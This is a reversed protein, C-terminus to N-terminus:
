RTISKTLITSGAADFSYGTKTVNTITITYTGPTTVNLRINAIGSTNTRATMDSTGGPYDWHASVTARSVGVGNEDVVTVRANTRTAGAQLQIASVRLCNVTCGAAPTLAFNQITTQGANIVVGTAVSSNYGAASATVSYSGAPMNPISYFGTGDTTASLGSGADVLAGAIPASTNADTVTGQLTGTQVAGCNAVQFSGIRTKWSTVGTTQVWEQTYWFTCDDSPDVSMTSYDGWRNYTNDTQAGSGNVITGEGQPLTGLPDSAVRGTYKVSPFITSSSLSFGLALDGQGNMAASGM